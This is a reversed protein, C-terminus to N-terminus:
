KISFFSDNLQAGAEGDGKGVAAYSLSSWRDTSWISWSLGLSPLGVPYFAGPAQNQALM